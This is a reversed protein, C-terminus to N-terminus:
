GYPFLLLTPNQVATLGNFVSMSVATKGSRRLAPADVFGLQKSRGSIAVRSAVSSIARTSSLGGVISPAPGNFAACGPATAALCLAGLVARRLMGTGAEQLFIRAEKSSECGTICRKTRLFILNSRVGRPRVEFCVSVRRMRSSRPVCVTRAVMSSPSATLSGLILNRPRVLRTRPFFTCCM